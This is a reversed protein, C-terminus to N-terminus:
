GRATKQAKQPKPNMTRHTGTGQKLGPEPRPDESGYKERAAGSGQRQQTGTPTITLSYRDGRDFQITATTLRDEFSLFARGPSGAADQWLATAQQGTLTKAEYVLRYTRNSITVSTPRIIQGQGTAPMLVSLVVAAVLILRKM